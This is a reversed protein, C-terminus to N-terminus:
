MVRSRSSRVKSCGALRNPNKDTKQQKKQKSDRFTPLVLFPLNTGQKIKQNRKKKRKRPVAVLSAAVTHMTSNEPDVQALPVTLSIVVDYSEGIPEPFCIEVVKDSHSANTTDGVALLPCFGPKGFNSTGPDALGQTIKALKAALGPSTFQKRRRKAVKSHEKEGLRAANWFARSQISFRFRRDNCDRTLRCIAVGRFYDLVDSFEMWFEGEDKEKPKTFKTKVPPGAGPSKESAIDEKITAPQM